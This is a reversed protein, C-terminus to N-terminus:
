IIRTSPLDENFMLLYGDPDMVLFGKFRLLEKDKRYEYVKPANKIPWNHKELRTLIPEIRDVEFQFHIGRGRPYELPGTYWPSDEDDNNADLMIQSGQYSVFAFNSEPRDYEVKFGLINVYFDLSKKIDSVTLEPVLKNFRM